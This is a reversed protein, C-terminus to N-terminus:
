PAETDQRRETWQTIFAVSVEAQRPMRIKAGKMGSHFADGAGGKRGGKRRPARPLSIITSNRPNRRARDGCSINRSHESEACRSLDSSRRTPFSHLDRPDRERKLFFFTYM